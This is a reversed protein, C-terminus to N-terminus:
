GPLRFKATQRSIALLNGEADWIEGDEELVGQTMMKSKFHVKLPGSVPKARVQVTLEITPVWGTPGFHTFVPPPYADTFYLLSYVDLVNGDKFDIWGSWEGSKQPEGLFNKDAGPAVKQLTYKQVNIMPARPIDICDEIAPVDPPSVDMITEGYLKDLQTYAATFQVKLEGDQILKAVAYSTSKGLTLPEVVIECEGVRSAAMYFGNISMPEKHPLAESLAKGAIAMLYGGNPVPGICWNESLQAKWRNDAVKEIATNQDFLGM